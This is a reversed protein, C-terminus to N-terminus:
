TSHKTSFISKFDSNPGTQASKLMAIVLAPPQDSRFLLAAMIRRKLYQSALPRGHTSRYQPSWSGPPSCIEPCIRDFRASSEPATPQDGLRSVMSRKPRFWAKM